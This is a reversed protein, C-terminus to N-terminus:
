WWRRKSLHRKAAKGLTSAPVRQLQKSSSPIGALLLAPGTSVLWVGVSLCMVCAAVSVHGRVHVVPLCMFVQQGGDQKAPGIVRRNVNNTTATESENELSSQSIDGPIQKGAVSCARSASM